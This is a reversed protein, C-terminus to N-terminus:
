AAAFQNTGLQDLLDLVNASVHDEAIRGGSIRLLHTESFEIKRNTPTIGLLNGTHTGSWTWRVAVRMGDGILEDIDCEFNSFGSRFRRMWDEYKARGRIPYHSYPLYAVFDEALVSEGTASGEANAFLGVFSRALVDASKVLETAGAPSMLRLAVDFGMRHSQGLEMMLMALPEIYRANELAGAHVPQLGADRILEAAHSKATRDDGCYFVTPMNSGFLHARSHLITAFITNFAEVVAAAPVLRSIEEAASTDFGIELGRSGVPNVCSILTKGNMAGAASLADNVEGWPVALFLVDAFGVADRPTGSRAHSGIELVLADLKEQRRSYSFMVHHGHRAWLRGLGAGMKGSGIIGIDMLCKRWFHQPPATGNHVAKVASSHGVFPIQAAHRCFLAKSQALTYNLVANTRPRGIRRTHTNLIVARVVPRVTDTSSQTFM